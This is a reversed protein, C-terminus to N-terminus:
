VAALIEMIIEGDRIRPAEHLKAFPEPAVIYVGVVTPPPSRDTGPSFRVLTCHDLGRVRAVMWLAAERKGEPLSVLWDIAFTNDKDGVAEDFAARSSFREKVYIMFARKIDDDETM